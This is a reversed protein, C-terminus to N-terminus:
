HVDERIGALLRALRRPLGEPGVRVPDLGLGFALLVAHEHPLYNRGEQLAGVIRRDLLDIQFGAFPERGEPRPGKKKPRPSSSPTSCGAWPSSGRLCESPPGCGRGSGACCITSGQSSWRFCISSPWVRAGVVIELASRRRSDPM